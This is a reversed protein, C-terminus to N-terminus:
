STWSCRPRFRSRRTASSAPSSGEGDRDDRRLTKVKTEGNIVVALTNFFLNAIPQLDKEPDYPITKFLFQNYVAPESSM